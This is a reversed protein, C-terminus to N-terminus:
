SGWPRQHVQDVSNRSSALSAPKTDAASRCTPTSLHNMHYQFLCTYVHAVTLVHSIGLADQMTTQSADMSAALSQCASIELFTLKAHYWFGPTVQLQESITM